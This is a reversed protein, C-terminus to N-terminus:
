RLRIHALSFPNRELHWILDRLRHSAVNHTASM